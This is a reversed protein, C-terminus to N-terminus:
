RREGFGKRDIAFFFLHRFFGMVGALFFGTIPFVLFSVTAQTPDFFFSNLDM